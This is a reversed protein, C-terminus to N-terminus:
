MWRTPRDTGNYETAELIAILGNEYPQLDRWDAIDCRIASLTGPAYGAALRSVMSPHDENVLSAALAHIGPNHGVLFVSAVDAVVGQLAAKYDGQPANYLAEPYEIVPSIGSIEELAALASRLTQRTRVAPSCLVLEPLFEAAAMAAGLAKADSVGQATLERDKDTGGVPTGAAQAHRLIYLQKM